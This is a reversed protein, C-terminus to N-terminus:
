HKNLYLMVLLFIFSLLMMLFSYLGHIAQQNESLTHDQDILARAKPLTYFYYVNILYISVFLLVCFLKNGIIFTPFGYWSLGVLIGFLQFGQILSVFSISSFRRDEEKMSRRFKYMSIFLIDYLKMFAFIPIKLHSKAGVRAGIEKVFKASVCPRRCERHTYSYVPSDNAM